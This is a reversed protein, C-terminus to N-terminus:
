IWEPSRSLKSFNPHQFAFNVIEKRVKLFMYIYTDDRKTMSMTTRLETLYRNQAEWGGQKSLM